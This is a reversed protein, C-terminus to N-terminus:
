ELPRRAIVPPERGALLWGGITAALPLGAVILVLNVIPVNTLPHLDSRHWALLALYAGATGLLAGLLALAGATWGTLARRTRTTAGAAALVRLDNATESRILGVTMALVGLALLIGAVTSIHRLQTLSQQTTRTEISLGAGAALTRAGDIQAATLPQRTQLLWAAPRVQLGLTEVAHTTILTNPDSGYTPLLDITQFKPQITQRPDGYALRLVAFERHSSLVDATPDIQDPGIGYRGLLEPTAIYLTAYREVRFGHGAPTIKVLSVTEKGGPGGGPGPIDPATPNIAADLRLVDHTGLSDALAEVRAQSAQLEAPTVDRLFSDAGNDALYVVLQNNPLNSGTSSESSAQAAASIAITAAIAVALAIAALAAGSRAQYRVLDRLALRLAIRSRRGAAALGRIALPALLLVGVVTAITGVATLSVSTRDALALFVVGVAIVIAGLAAFRHAPQPRPPRGSLAAVVSVRSATRAPWWAAAIATVVALVMATGIAWWPVALRDIRHGVITEFKPAFALWGALGIATGVVAGVVGVVAGNALMVLRVHRDTAGLSGLMGLARVRRQAMMTFGAAAVLGVFLLGMTAMALVAAANANRTTDSRVEIQLPTGSPLHLSDFRRPNTELLATVTTPPDAQGPAVLAFEDRLNRPNEVFGVVQLGRGAENWRDGIGVQVLAAVQDTLAVEDPGTPYRGARLGLRPHTGAPDISRLDITAVSGPVAIKQHYAVEALGFTNRIATVDANLQPDSGPLIIITEPAPTANTAMAVGAATAAVAVTVLLLVLFQQRWERRFLRWSWRMVARRAPGGGNGRDATTASPTPRADLAVTM